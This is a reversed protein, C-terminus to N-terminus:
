TSHLQVDQPLGNLLHAHPQNSQFLLLSSTVEIVEHKQQAEQLMKCGGLRPFSQADKQQM